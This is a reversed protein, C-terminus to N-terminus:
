LARRLARSQPDGRRGLTRRLAPELDREGGDRSLIVLDDVLAPRVEEELRARGLHEVVLKEVRPDLAALEAERDALPGSHVRISLAV